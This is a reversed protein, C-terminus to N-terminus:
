LGVDRGEDRTKQWFYGRGELNELLVRGDQATQGDAQEFGQRQCM